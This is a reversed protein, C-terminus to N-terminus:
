EKKFLYGNNVYFGEQFKHECSKYIPSFYPDQVHLECVNDFSLIQSGLTALLTYRRSLADVM